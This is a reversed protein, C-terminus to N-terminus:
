PNICWLPVKSEAGAVIGVTGNTLVIRGAGDPALFAAVNLALSALQDNPWLAAFNQGPNQYSSYNILPFPM